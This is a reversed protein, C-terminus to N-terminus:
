IILTKLDIKKGTKSESMENDHNIWELSFRQRDINNASPHYVKMCDICLHQAIKEILKETIKYNKNNEDYGCIIIDIASSILKYLNKKNIEAMNILLVRKNYLYKVIHLTDTIKYLDFIIDISDFLLKSVFLFSSPYTNKKPVFAVKNNVCNYFSKNFSLVMPQSERQKGKYQEIGIIIHFKKISTNFNNVNKIKNKLTFCM